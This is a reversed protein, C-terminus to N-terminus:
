TELSVYKIDYFFFTACCLTFYVFSIFELFLNFDSEKM